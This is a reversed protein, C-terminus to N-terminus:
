LVFVAKSSVNSTKGQWPTPPITPITKVPIKAEDEILPTTVSWPNNKPSVVRKILCMNANTSTDAKAKKIDKTTNFTVSKITGM